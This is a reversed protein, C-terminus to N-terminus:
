FDIDHMYDEVDTLFENVFCAAATDNSNLAAIEIPFPYGM